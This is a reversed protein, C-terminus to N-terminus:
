YGGIDVLPGYVSIALLELILLNEARGLVDGGLNNEPLSITPQFAVKVNKM